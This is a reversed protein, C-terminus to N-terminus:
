VSPRSGHTPLPSAASDWSTGLTNRSPRHTSRFLKRDRLERLAVGAQYFSDVIQKELREREKQEDESLETPEEALLDGADEAVVIAEEVVIAEVAEVPAVEVVQEQPEAV